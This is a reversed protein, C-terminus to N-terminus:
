VIPTCNGSPAIKQIRCSDHHPTGHHANDHCVTTRYDVLSLGSVASAWFLGVVAWVHGFQGWVVWSLASSAALLWFVPELGPGFFWALM